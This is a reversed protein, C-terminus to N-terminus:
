EYHVKDQRKITRRLMRVFTRSTSHEHERMRSFEIAVKNKNTYQRCMAEQQMQKRANEKDIHKMNM